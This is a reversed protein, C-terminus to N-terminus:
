EVVKREILGKQVIKETETDFLCVEEENISFELLQGIKYNWQGGWKCIWEEGDVDISILTENGLLAVNVIPAKYITGGEVPQILHEPRIGFIVSSSIKKSMTESIAISLASSLQISCEAVHVSAQKLNMPPSGIFTAVFINEPYNYIDMPTGIQQAYGKDLIMMRDGMTMAEVQDHTVYIMTFGLKKQLRRLESRMHARLKADLNSLPEDMLCIPQENVIARALAVRQRQGGSLQRPKRKLYDSLGLMAAVEEIKQKRVSKELKKVQLGFGINEEVSMHPYLAYNQFVMTIGRKSPHIDNVVDEGFILNGSTINELGAIIRLMTSKGCGSPGVLVFFEGPEIEINIESLVETQKDYSKKINELRVRQM